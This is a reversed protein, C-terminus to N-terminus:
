DPCGKHKGIIGNAAAYNGQGPSGLLAAVSSFCVFFDLPLNATLKHLNWAGAVKPAMVRGFRELSQQQLVGDDLVGAAHIIGRLPPLQTQIKDLVEVVQNPQAVDATVVLVKVGLQEFNSIRQQAALSAQSRGTLVLQRAGKEVLWGAVELGLAGLGGTIWYSAEPQISFQRNNAKARKPPMSALRAVYRKGQRIAIQDEADPATLELLLAQLNDEITAQASLDLRVCRLEPHEQAIVRGLGWLSSGNLQMPEPEAAVAQTGQTVLVLHPQTEWNRQGLAQVLHLVSGCNKLETTELDRSDAAGTATPQISWLYIISLPQQRDSESLLKQFHELQSPDVQYHQQAIKEYSVGASVLICNAGQKQLKEALQQGLGQPDTFILWSKQETPTSPSKELAQWDIEYLWEAVDQYLSHLLLERTAKRAELGNIQVILQGSGDFLKIDAVVKDPNSNESRRRVHCWLQQSELRQYFHFSAIAFPVFTGEASVLTSTLQFCSDILGPHLQYEDLEDKSVPWKMQALAETEGYWISDLWQFSPGLQIQAQEFRQYVEVSTIQKPCRAQIEPISINESPSSVKHALKGTSHVVWQEVAASSDANTDFSILQFSKGSEQPSLLLQVKRVGPQPIVLAQSFVINELLYAETPFTLKAAGLLLSLHCAGPVVVKTYVLHDALFSLSDTSFDSEFLIEKSLPLQLKKDILPHLKIFNQPRQHHPTKELWYRQRQFAYTPLAVKTRHYDRDFGAWDVKYGVAYLQGLSSLMVQWEDFGPRLSPLWLGESQPQCQHGM